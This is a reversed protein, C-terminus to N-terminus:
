STEEESGEENPNTLEDRHEIGKQYVDHDNSAGNKEADIQQKNDKEM